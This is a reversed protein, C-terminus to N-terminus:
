CKERVAPCAGDCGKGDGAKGDGGKKGDVAGGAASLADGVKDAGAASTIAGALELAGGTAGAAAEKKGNKDAKDDGKLNRSRHPKKKADSGDM